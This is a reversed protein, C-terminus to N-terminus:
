SWRMHIGAFMLLARREHPDREDVRIGWTKSHGAEYRIRVQFFDKYYYGGVTCPPVWRVEDVVGGDSPKPAGRPMIWCADVISAIDPVINM